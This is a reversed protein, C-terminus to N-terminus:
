RKNKIKFKFDNSSDGLVKYKVGGVLTEGHTQRADTNINKGKSITDKVADAKGQEYFHQALADPNMAAFLSKHYGKADQITNDKGVFKNVFNNLDSQTEKVEQTNKVNYRFKKEGVKFDFGKFEENFVANTRQKFANTTKETLKTQAASDENYRNFFDMAKQQESTLKSGSKIENYYKDKQKELHKKAKAVEEKLAIKKRKIDKDTDEDEDFGFTEELLFGREEASLHPKTQKYYESLADDSDLKSVDTNLMVYDSIDGGTDKMFDVLKQIGEPLPEGTVEAEAIAEEVKEEVEKTEEVVADPNDIIEELVPSEEEQVEGEPQVTEQEETPEANEDSGVVGAPDVTAEETENTTPNDLDVKYVEPESNSSGMTVKTIEEM